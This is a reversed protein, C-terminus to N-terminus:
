FSWVQIRNNERDVIYIRGRNDITIDNPYNFMGDGMSFDGFAYLFSPEPGSVDYTKINQGVADVVFLRDKEDIYIGRPLSLAGDGVGRGFNFM